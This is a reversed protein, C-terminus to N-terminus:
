GATRGQARVNADPMMCCVAGSVRSDEIRGNEGARIGCEIKVGLEDEDEDVPCLAKTRPVQLAIGAGWVVM